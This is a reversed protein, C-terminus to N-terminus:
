LGKGENIKGTIASYVQNGSLKIPHIKGEYTLQFSVEHPTVFLIKVGDLSNKLIPTEHSSIKQSNIWVTWQHSSHFLIAQLHLCGSLAFPQISQNEFRPFEKSKEDFFSFSGQLQNLLAFYIMLTYKLWGKHMM